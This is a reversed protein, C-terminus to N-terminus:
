IHFKVTHKHNNYILQHRIKLKGKKLELSDKNNFTNSLESINQSYPTVPQRMLRSIKGQNDKLVTRRRTFVGVFQIHNTNTLPLQWCEDTLIWYQKSIHLLLCVASMFATWKDNIVDKHKFLNSNKYKKHTQTEKYCCKRYTADKRHGDTLYITTEQKKRLNDFYSIHRNGEPHTSIFTAKWLATAPKHM